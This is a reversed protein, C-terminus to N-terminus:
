QGRPVKILPPRKKVSEIRVMLKGSQGSKWPNSEGSLNKILSEFDEWEDKGTVEICGISGWAQRKPNDAGDHILFDGYIQWSGDMYGARKLSHVQFDKLGVVRHRDIRSVQKVGFRIVKFKREVKKLSSDTGIVVMEYLPVRFRGGMRYPFARVKGTGVPKSSVIIEVSRIEGM